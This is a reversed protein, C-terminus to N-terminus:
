PFAFIFCETSITVKLIKFEYCGMTVASLRPKCLLTGRTDSLTARATRCLLWAGAAHRDASVHGHVTPINGTAQRTPPEVGDPSTRHSHARCPERSTPAQGCTERALVRVAHSTLVGTRFAPQKHESGPKNM